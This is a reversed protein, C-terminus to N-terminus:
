HLLDFTLNQIDGLINDLRDILEQKCKQEEMDQKLHQLYDFSEDLQRRAEAKQTRTM